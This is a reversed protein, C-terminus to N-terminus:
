LRQNLPAHGVRALSRVAACALLPLWSVVAAAVCAVQRHVLRATRAHQVPQRLFSAAGRQQPRAAHHPAAGAAAAVHTVCPAHLLLM